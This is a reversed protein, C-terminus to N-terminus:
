SLPCPTIGEAKTINRGCQQPSAIVPMRLKTVLLAFLFCSVRWFLDDATLANKLLLWLAGM